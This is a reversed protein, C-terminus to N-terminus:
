GVNDISKDHGHRRRVVGSGSVDVNQFSTLPKLEATDTM